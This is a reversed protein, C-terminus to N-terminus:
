PHGSKARRHLAQPSQNDDTTRRQSLSAVVGVYAPELLTSFARAM